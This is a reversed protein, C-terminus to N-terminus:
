SIGSVVATLEDVDNSLKFINTDMDGMREYMASLRNTFSMNPRHRVGGENEEKIRRAKAAVAEDESNNIQDDVLEGYGLGNYRCIGLDVIKVVNILSTEQRLTVIRMYALAMLGYSRAIRGILHAGVILSKKKYGKEKDFLFKAMTWPVDVMEGTVSLTLLRHVLRCIPNKITTYSPRYRIDYHNKTSIGVFYEMPNYNNPRMSMNRKVGGFQFVMTDAIYLEMVHDGFKFSSLFELVYERVVQERIMFLLTSFKAYDFAKPGEIEKSLLGKHNNCFEKRSNILFDRNNFKIWDRPT